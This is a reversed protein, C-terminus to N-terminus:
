SSGEQPRVQASKHWRQDQMRYGAAEFLRRSGVNQPMVTAVLDKVQPLAAALHNEAAPLLVGGLGLGHLAPDLYISVEAGNGEENLDFRVVGVDTSGVHGILLLRRPDRLAQHLWREHDQIAIPRGDRSVTRTAPDNRWQHMTQSDSTSARRVRLAERALHLAVRRAGLGDVLSRSREALEARRRPSEILPRLAAAIAAADPRAPAPLAAVAGLQELQPVVVEQNAAAVVALTPAGICCREWSAGGGAGIQLDHRAFFQALDPQDVSLATQPWQAVTAALVALRPNGSTTVVEVPGTFGCHQRVAHLAQASLGAPDTGGLFIGISHVTERPVYRNAHAYAPGLLAFRPGGLIRTRPPVRGAYKARHDPALNHDVLVDADLPRDALDDIVVVRCNLRTAVQRHWHSDIRYHDVVVADVDAHELHECTLRADDGGAPLELVSHGHASVRSSADVDNARIVFVVAAGADRLAAALALCRQLHGLGLDASADVRIAVHRM